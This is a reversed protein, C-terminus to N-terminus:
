CRPRAILHNKSSRILSKLRKGEAQDGRISALGAAATGRANVMKGDDDDDDDDDHLMM